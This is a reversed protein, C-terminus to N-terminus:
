TSKQIKFYRPYTATRNRARQKIEVAAKRQATTLRLAKKLPRCVPYYEDTKVSGCPKGTAIDVWKERFWTTLPAAGSKPERYPAADPGYLDRVRKKYERVLQGSAYASPWRAVHNKVDAKVAAYTDPYTPTPM